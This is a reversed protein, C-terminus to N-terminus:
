TLKQSYLSKSRTKESPVFHSSISACVCLYVCVCHYILLSEHGLMYLLASLDVVLSFFRSTVGRVEGKYRRLEQFSIFLAILM